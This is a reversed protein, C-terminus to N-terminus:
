LLSKQDWTPEADDLCEPVDNRPDSVVRSVARVDVAGAYPKLVSLAEDVSGSLWRGEDEPTVIVPMRDHVPRVAPAADTTVIAFTEYIERSTGRGREGVRPKWREWLGAFAFLPRGSATIAYPRKRGAAGKWEYFGSAPVLCRRERMAERFAPKTEIAEARANIMRNGVGIDKAWAPVLGWRLMAAERAGTDSVRVVPADQTPAINYRKGIRENVPVRFTYAIVNGDADLFYRSCM